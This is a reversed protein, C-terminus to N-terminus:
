YMYTNFGQMVVNWPIVDNLEVLVVTDFYLQKM